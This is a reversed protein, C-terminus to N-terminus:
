RYPFSYNWECKAVTVNWNGPLNDVKYTCQGSVGAFRGSGGPMWLTGEGSTGAALDGSQRKFVLLLTDGSAFTAVADAELEFGSPTKKSFSAYQVTASAGEVFPAGSSHVFTVTGNGGRATVTTDDMQVSYVNSVAALVLDVTGKDAYCHMSALLTCGAIPFCAFTLNRKM